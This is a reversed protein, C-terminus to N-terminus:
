ITKTWLYCYRHIWMTFNQVGGGGRDLNKWNKYFKQFFKAFNCTPMGAPQRGWRPSIRSGGSFIRLLKKNWSLCIHSYLVIILVSHASNYISQISVTLVSQRSLYHVHSSFEKNVVHACHTCNTFFTQFFLGSHDSNKHHVSLMQRWYQIRVM